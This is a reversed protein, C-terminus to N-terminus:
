RPGPWEPMQALFERGAGKVWVFEKDIKAASVVPGKAGGCIAGILLLLLGLLMNSGNGSVGGVIILAVGALVILWSGLIFWKREARHKECLGIHILAKKRVIIAVIAYILIGVFILLYYAPPHWQLRRKLRFGNAPANCRVCRDPFETESRMVMKRDVRWILGASTPPAAGETLRQLFIPKCQACVWSRNVHVMESQPFARHCEVCTTGARAEVMVPPVQAVLANAAPRVAHLPQWEAMGQRWILTDSNIRASGLLEDLEAESVPGNQRGEAAYFWDM